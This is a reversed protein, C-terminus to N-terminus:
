SSSAHRPRTFLLFAFTAIERHFSHVARRALARCAKDPMGQAQGAVVFSAALRKIDWEFPGPLTEDFDNLDFVADGTFGAFAGFNALHCDGSLQVRIGTNPSAGFDAAMIAAGGRLFTFPDVAMRAHRLPRLAAIRDADQAKLAAVPDARGPRPVYDAHSSRSMSARKAHGAAKRDSVSLLPLPTSM